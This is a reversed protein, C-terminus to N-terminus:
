EIRSFEFIAIGLMLLGLLAVVGSPWFSRGFVSAARLVRRGEVDLSDLAGLLQEIPSDSM